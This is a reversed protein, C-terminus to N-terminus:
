YNLAKCTSNSAKEFWGNSLWKEVKTAEATWDPFIEKNNPYVKGNKYRVGSIVVRASQCDIQSIDLCYGERIDSTEWHHVYEGSIDNCSFAQASLFTTLAIIIKLM